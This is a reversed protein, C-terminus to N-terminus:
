CWCYNDCGLNVIQDKHFQSESHEAINSKCSSGGLECHVTGSFVDGNVSQVEAWYCSEGNNVQVYCGPGLNELEEESVTNHEEVIVISENIKNLM